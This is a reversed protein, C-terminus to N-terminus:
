VIATSIAARVAGDSGGTVASDAEVTGSAAEAMSGAGM